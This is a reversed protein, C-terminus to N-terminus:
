GFLVRAMVYFGVLVIIVAFVKRLLSTDMGSSIRTGALGGAIGGVIFFISISYILDGSFAYRVATLVGFTGVVLLSTGIAENIRIRTSYMIAPVILFGGGIGFFGSAFGTLVSFIGVKGCKTKVNSKTNEALSGENEANRKAIYMRVGVAIMLLSFLFLLRGSNTLLGITSGAFVGIAGIVSFIAGTGVRVNGRKHHAFFNIYANVGVALATTGIALHTSRVGVFYLLLPIALISGGGGILGLIFGVAIGSIISLVLQIIGIVM